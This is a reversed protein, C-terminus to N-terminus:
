NAKKIIIQNYIKCIIGVYWYINLIYFSHLSLYFMILYFNNITYINVLIYLEKNLIVDNLLSYIRFYSFTIFFLLINKYKIYSSIKNNDKIINHIFLFISSIEAKLINKPVNSIVLYNQSLEYHQYFYFILFITCIHHIIIDKKKTIFLDGTLLIGVIFCCNNVYKNTIICLTSVLSVILFFTNYILQSM